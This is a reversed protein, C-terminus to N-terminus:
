QVEQSDAKAKERGAKEARKRANFERRAAIAERKARKDLKVQEPDKHTERRKLADEAEQRAGAHHIPCCLSPCTCGEPKVAAPEIKQERRTPIPESKDSRMDFPWGPSTYVKEEQVAATPEEAPKDEIWNTQLMQEQNM